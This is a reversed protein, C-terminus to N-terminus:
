REHSPKGLQGIKQRFRLFIIRSLNRCAQIISWLQMDFYQSSSYYAEFRCDLSHPSTHVGDARQLLITRPTALRVISALYDSGSKGGNALCLTYDKGLVYGYRTLSAEFCVTAVCVTKQKLAQRVPTAGRVSANTGM